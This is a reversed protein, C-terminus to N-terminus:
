LQVTSAISACPLFNLGEFSNRFLTMRDDGGEDVVVGLLAAVARRAEDHGRFAEQVVDWDSRHLIHLLSEAAIEAAATGVHADALGDSSAACSNFPPCCHRIVTPWRHVFAADDALAGAAQVAGGFCAARAFYEDSRFGGPSSCATSSVQGCACAFTFLMSVLAASFIVPTVATRTM